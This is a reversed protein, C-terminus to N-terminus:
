DHHCLRNGCKKLHGQVLKVAGLADKAYGDAGVSSAIQANVAAGGVLVSVGSNAGKRLQRIIVELQKRSGTTFASLGILGVGYTEVAELFQDASVDVGLDIVSLGYVELM